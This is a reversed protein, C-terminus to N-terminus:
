FFVGNHKRKVPCVRSDCSTYAHTGHRSSAQFVRPVESVVTVHRRVLRDTYMSGEGLLDCTGHLCTLVLFANALNTEYHFFIIIEFM